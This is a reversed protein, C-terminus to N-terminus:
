FVMTDENPITPAGPNPQIVLLAAAFAVGVAGTLTARGGKECAPGRRRLGEGVGSSVCRWEDLGGERARRVEHGVYVDCLM